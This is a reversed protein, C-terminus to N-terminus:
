LQLLLTNINAKGGKRLVHRFTIASVRFTGDRRKTGIRSRADQIGGAEGDTRHYGRHEAPDGLGVRLHRVPSSRRPSVLRRRLLRPARFPRLSLRLAAMRPPQISTIVSDKASSKSCLRALLRIRGPVM